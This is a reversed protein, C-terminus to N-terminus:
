LLRYKFCSSFINLIKQEVIGFKKLIYDVINRIISIIFGKNEQEDRSEQEGQNMDEKEGQKMDKIKNKLSELASKQAEIATIAQKISDPDAISSISNPLNDLPNSSSDKLASDLKRKADEYSSININSSIWSRSPIFNRKRILAGDSALLGTFSKMGPIGGQKTLNHAVISIIAKKFDNNDKKYDQFLKKLIEENSEPFNDNSEDFLTNNKAKYFNYTDIFENIAKKLDENVNDLNELDKVEKEDIKGDYLSNLFARIKDESSNIVNKVDEKVGKIDVNKEGTGGTSGDTSAHSSEGEPPLMKKLQTITSDLSEIIKDIEVEFPKKEQQDTKKDGPDSTKDEIPLSSLELSPNLMKAFQDYQLMSGDSLSFINNLDFLTGNKDKSYYSDDPIWERFEKKFKGLNNPQMLLYMLLETVKKRDNPDKLIALLSAISEASIKMHHKFDTFMKSSDDYYELFPKKLNPKKNADGNYSPLKIFQDNNTTNCIALMRAVGTIPTVIEDIKGDPKKLIIKLMNHWKREMEESFGKTLSGYINIIGLFEGLTHHDINEMKLNTKDSNNIEKVRTEIEKDYLVPNSTPTTFRKIAINIPSGFLAPVTDIKKMSNIGNHLEDLSSKIKDCSNLIVACTFAAAIQDKSTKLLTEAKKGFIKTAIPLVQEKTIQPTTATKQFMIKNKDGSFAEIGGKSDPSGGTSAIPEIAEIGKYSLAISFFILIKRFSLFMLFELIM